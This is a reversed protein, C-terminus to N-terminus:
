KKLEEKSKHEGANFGVKFCMCEQRTPKRRNLEIFHEKWQEIYDEREM